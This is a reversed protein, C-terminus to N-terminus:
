RFMSFELLQIMELVFRGGYCTTGIIEFFIVGSQNRLKYYKTQLWM